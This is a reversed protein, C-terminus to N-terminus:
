LTFEYRERPGERASKTQGLQLSPDCLLQADCFLVEDEHSGSPRLDFRLVPCIFDGGKKIDLQNYDSINAKSLSNKDLLPLTTAAVDCNSIGLKAEGGSVLLIV